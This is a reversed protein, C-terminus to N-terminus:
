IDWAAQAGETTAEIIRRPETADGVFFHRINKKALMEKFQQKPTIGVAVIVLGVPEIKKEVGGESVIVSGEGIKEVRTHLMFKAGAAELRRHVMTNHAGQAPVPHDALMEVLMVNKVGKDCLFDATEMGVPGAGIVVINDKLAVEGNLIQWADCVVSATIGSVPCATKDGGTALVVVDPKGTEIMDETVETGTRIDM